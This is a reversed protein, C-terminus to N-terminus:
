PRGDAEVVHTVRDFAIGAAAGAAVAAEPSAADYIAFCIEDCVLHVVRVLAVTLGAASLRDAAARATAALEDLRAGAEPLYFEALYRM